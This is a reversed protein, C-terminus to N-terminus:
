CVWGQMSIGLVVLIYMDSEPIKDPADQLDALVNAKISPPAKVTPANVYICIGSVYTDTSRKMELAEDRCKGAKFAGDGSQLQSGELHRGCKEM